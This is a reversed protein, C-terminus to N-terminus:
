RAGDAPNKAGNSPSAMNLLPEWCALYSHIAARGAEPVTIGKAKAVAQLREFYAFPLNIHWRRMPRPPRLRLRLAAPLRPAPMRHTTIAEKVIYRLRPGVRRQCGTCLSTKNDRRLAKPYWLCYRPQVRRAYERRRREARRRSEWCVTPLNQARRKRWNRVFRGCACYKQPQEQEARWRRLFQPESRSLM